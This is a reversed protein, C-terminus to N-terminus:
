RYVFVLRGSGTTTKKDDTTVTLRYVYVGPKMKVLHDAPIWEFPLSKTGASGVRVQYSDVQAGSSQYVDLTVDFSEDPQNHTFIFKTQGQMPNPYCSVNEIRFDDKVVFRVEVETSNNLVDWVKLRLVHEGEALDTLPFVITGSTYLDKDAQFYDNLVMINSYDDDLIATIDHGIGTGSTNIGTDDSINAILVSSASVQDGDKFSESNLFLEVDPGKTDSITNNSAGGIYFQDFYGQADATENYAYYLIKGKGLKYSIDKPVFFSFEFEGNKVSALGKYIVNNQVNYSMPTQGGNGLTEVQQAKDYVVPIIEGNFTTLKAGNIDAIYGKVTVVSLTRITDTQTVVDKGDISVTKVQYEPNALRMAPDALLTFNLQNIGTNADAKAKRMVDGLRLNKGQEDKEFIHKFFATNLVFNAGSYVLRTTSFLGVGGGKPNFLIYEGASTDDSDFRSFECTATVFIPLRSYNSWSNITSIDLVNEDALYKENAHGTYNMVLTGQKVRNSIAASVDPYKEGGSTSIQKYADLYIKDTFFGPYTKNVLTALSEAQTMHTTYDEDDGIFTVVNRWNGLSEKEYYHKIKDIVYGADDANGASIRGIGLDLIGQSDGENEDLFGYFDDTVFSETPSLSIESQYTPILNHSKQMINRNDYSGDGMLLVYKLTNAGTQRGKDYCMRFYNRLGAPDPLGGSFENYIVEPTLVLVSMGDKIRHFEALENASVLLKKNAVIIMQSLDEGHLNQNDVAEVFEAAPISGTLNLAVYERTEASKSKFSLQGNNYTAPMEVSNNIDTVDIIKTAASAGNLVFESSTTTGSAGKGRFSYVDGIMKLSSQYNVSIYDLWANSSNNTASYGLKIQLANSSILGSATSIQENAFYGTPDTVDLALFSIDALSKGNVNVNMSSSASSRAAAAVLFLVSKSLDPNDLTLNFTQLQGANFEEGFWQSGSSILNRAEKEYYAYNSFANVTRGATETIEASKGITKVSGQDSLFFYTETAYYNQKHSLVGTKADETVSINGTSYFFLCDKGASDKGKLVPYSELDDFRTDKNFVPLMYGGTGYMSVQDPNAFGWQKIQDYTIKYFGKDKTKIKIWKGTKLVSASKWSYNSIVSQWQDINVVQKEGAFLENGVVFLFIFCLLFRLM